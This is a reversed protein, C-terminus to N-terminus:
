NQRTVASRSVYLAGPLQPFKIPQLYAEAVSKHSEDGFIATSTVRVEPLNGELKVQYKGNFLNHWPSTTNILLTDDYLKELYIEVGTNAILRAQTQEFM